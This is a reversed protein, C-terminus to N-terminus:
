IFTHFSISSARKGEFAMFLKEASMMKLNQFKRLFCLLSSNEHSDDGLMLLPIMFKKMQLLRSQSKVEKRALSSKPRRSIVMAFLKSGTRIQIWVMQCKSLTGSYIKKFFDASPLLLM